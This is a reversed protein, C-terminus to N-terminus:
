GNLKEILGTKKKKLNNNELAGSITHKEGIIICLNKARTIATYLLNRSMLKYHMDDPLVIIVVQYESGQSKHVTMCYALRLEYLLNPTYVYNETNYECIVNEDTIEKIIGTDGNFLGIESNNKIHMCADGKKYKYNIRKDGDMLELKKINKSKNVREQVLFNLEHVLKKQPTLIKYDLKNTDIDYNKAYKPIYKTILDVVFNNVNINRAKLESNEILMTDYSNEWIKGLYKFPSPILLNSDEPKTLENITKENGSRFTVKNGEITKIFDRDKVGNVDLYDAVDGSEWQDKYKGEEIKKKMWDYHIIQHAFKIIKKNDSQRFIKTLKITIEKGINSDVIDSLVKGSGISELQNPDGILIVNTKVLSAEIINFFLEDNVMSTEDVIILETDLPNNKNVKFGGEPLAGLTRHITFADLGSNKRLVEAAKASLAVANIKTEEGRMLRLSRIIFKSTTTKGTGAAGILVLFKKKHAKYVADRQYKSLKIGEEGELKKIIENLKSYDVHNDLSSLMKIRESITYEIKYRKKSQYHKINQKKGNRWVDKFVTMVEGSEEMINLISTIKDKHQKRERKLINDDIEDIKQQISDFSRVGKIGHKISLYTLIINKYGLENWMISILGYRGSDLVLTNGTQIVHNNLVYDIGYTLRKNSYLADRYPIFLDPITKLIDDFTIKGLIYKEKIDENELDNVLNKQIFKIYANDCAKFGIGRIKTFIFPNNRFNNIAKEGGFYENNIIKATESPSFYERLFGSYRIKARTDKYGRKLVNLQKQTIISLFQQPDRDLEEWIREGFEEFIKTAVKKGLGKFNTKDEQILEVFSSKTEVDQSLIAENAFFNLQKKGKYEEEKFNGHFEYTSGKHIENKQNFVKVISNTNLEDCNIVNLFYNFRDSNNKNKGDFLISKVIGKIIIKEKKNNEM